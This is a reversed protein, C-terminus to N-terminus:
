AGLIASVRFRILASFSLNHLFPTKITLQARPPMILSASRRLGIKGLGLIGITKEFLERGMYTKRDWKEDILSLNARPINRMLALLMAVTHETAAITNGGPTNMVIIGRNTATGLDVNDLGVGARGIVKLNVAAEIIDKTAKTGSRVILADYDKIISKLEEPKLGTNVDVSFSKENKLIKLGEDSLADSVLIKM